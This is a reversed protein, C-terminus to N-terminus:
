KSILNYKVTFFDNRRSNANSLIEDPTLSPFVVDERLGCGSDKTFGEENGSIDIAAIENAFAIIDSMQETLIPLEEDSVSLKSLAAIKKIEDHSIIKM